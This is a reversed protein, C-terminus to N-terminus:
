FIATGPTGYPQHAISGFARPDIVGAPGILTALGAFAAVGIMNAAYVLGWLRLGGSRPVDELVPLLALTTQETFLESRGLVVFIFGVAYMNAVLLAAVPKPLAGEVQTLMVAMLFLSFGLDLGASLGSVFLGVAPRGLADLGEEIEHRLILRSAKEAGIQWM